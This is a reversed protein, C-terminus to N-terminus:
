CQYRAWGSQGRTGDAREWACKMWCGDRWEGWLGQLTWFALCLCAAGMLGTLLADEGRAAEAFVADADAAVDALPPKLVRTWRRHATRLPLVACLLAALALALARAVYPWLRTGPPLPLPPLLLSSALFLLPAPLTGAAADLVRTSLPM